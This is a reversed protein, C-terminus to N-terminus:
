QKIIWEFYKCLKFFVFYIYNGSQCLIKAFCHGTREVMAPNQIKREQLDAKFIFHSLKSAKKHTKM